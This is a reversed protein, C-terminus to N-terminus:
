QCDLLHKKNNIFHGGLLRGDGLLEAWWGISIFENGEFSSVVNGGTFLCGNESDSCPANIDQKFIDIPLVVTKKGFVWRGDYRLFQLKTGDKVEFGDTSVMTNPFYYFQFAGSISSCVKTEGPLGEKIPEFGFGAMIHSVIKRARRSNRAGDYRELRYVAEHLILAAKNINDFHDWIEKNILLLNDDVYSAVQEVDCNAPTVVEAADDIPKLIVNNGTFRTIKQVREILPFLHIEPQSMSDRNDLKVKSIIEDVSSGFSVYSLGFLERGEFLDLVEATQIQGQQDRCVVSQGGGGSMGGEPTKAYSVSFGVVLLFTKVIINM